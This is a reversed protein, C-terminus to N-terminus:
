ISNANQFSRPFGLYFLTIEDIVFGQSQIPFHLNIGALKHLM